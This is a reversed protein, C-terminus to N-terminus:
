HCAGSSGSSSTSAAPCAPSRTTCRCAGTEAAASRVREVLGSNALAVSAHGALAEFLRADETDFTSMDDLRDAVVMVAVVQGGERLPAAMADLHGAGRLDTHPEGHRGKPLRLVSQTAPQWWTAAATPLHNRTECVIVEAHGARLLAQSERQVTEVM